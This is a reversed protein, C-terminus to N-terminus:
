EPRDEDPQEKSAFRDVAADHGSGSSLFILGMLAAALLVSLGVGLITAIMMHIPLPGLLHWLLAVAIGAALAAVAAMWGLLRRFRRWAFRAYAPDDLPDPDDHLMAKCEWRFM